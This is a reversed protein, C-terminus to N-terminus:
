TRKRDPKGDGVRSRQEYYDRDYDTVCERWDWGEPLTAETLEMMEELESITQLLDPTAGSPGLQRRAQELSNDLDRLFGKLQDWKMKDYVNIPGLVYANFTESSFQLHAPHPLQSPELQGLKKANEFIPAWREIYTEKLGIRDSKEQQIQGGWDKALPVLLKLCPINGKAAQAM